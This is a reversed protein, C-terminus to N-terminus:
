KKISMRYLTRSDTEKRTITQFKFVLNYCTLGDESIADFEACFYERGSSFSDMHPSIKVKISYRYSIFLQKWVAYSNDWSFGLSKLDNPFDINSSRYSTIDDIIGDHNFDWCDVTKNSDHKKLIEVLHKYKDNYRVVYIASTFPNVLREVETLKTKGPTVGFWSPNDLITKARVFDSDGSAQKDSSNSQLSLGCNPCFNYTSKVITRCKPCTMKFSHGCHRCFNAEAPNDTKCKPCIVNKEM